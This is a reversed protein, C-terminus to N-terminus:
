HSPQFRVTHQIDPILGSNGRIMEKILHTLVSFVPPNEQGMASLRLLRVTHFFFFQRYGNRSDPSHIEIVRQRSIHPFNRYKILFVPRYPFDSGIGAIGEQIAQLGASAGQVFGHLGCSPLLRHLKRFGGPYRQLFVIDKREIHRFEPQIVPFPAFFLFYEAQIILDAFLQSIGPPGVGVRLGPYVSFLFIFM